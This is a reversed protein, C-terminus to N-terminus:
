WNRAIERARKLAASKSTYICDVRYQWYHNEIDDTHVRYVVEFFDTPFSNAGYYSTAIADFNRGIYVKSQYSKM